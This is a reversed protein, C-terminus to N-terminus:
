IADLIPKFKTESEAAVGGTITITTAGKVVVLRSANLGPYQQMVFDRGATADAAAGYECIAVHMGSGARGGVCYRAHATAAVYQKTRLPALETGALKALVAEVTPGPNPRQSKEKELEAYIRSLANDDAAGTPITNPDAAPFPKASAPTASESAVPAAFGTAPADNKCAGLVALAAVFLLPRPRVSSLM